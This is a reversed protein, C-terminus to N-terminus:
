RGLFSEVMPLKRRLEDTVARAQRTDEVVHPTILVVLETKGANDTTTGFLAGLIPIQSLGPIGGRGKTHSKTILGGLAITEGDQVAVSSTIKRQQITPSDIASTTTSTVDSVEQAIDMMVEGGRNVRPTVKLIVGTSQYQVSNVLPADPTVTSVAQQTVIPVQDGVQLTATENNLVMLQPTSLLEVRTVTSLADLVVKINSGTYVAAYGPLSPAIATSASNSLVVSYSPNPQFFYQFGYKLNDNLTVEAIAAEILVQLPAVDLLALAAKITTYQQPTAMFVLANNSADATITVPEQSGAVSGSFQQVSAPPPAPAGPTTAAANSPVPQPSNDSEYDSQQSSHGNASSDGFLTKGLTAALDSARGHQVDYVFIRRHSGTGPRDLRAVWAALQDLYRKQPSIALVTNLRDIPVIRVVGVIPSNMGGLVQTLEKALEQADLNTPTFLAFSMGAMWDADFLAIDDLLTQREEETGEIILLNRATDVHIIAHTSALPTLLKEMESAAIFKIPAVEIGYGTAVDRRAGPRMIGGVQGPADSLSVVKYIDNQLIIAMGSLRLTQDLVALVKSRPLPRSTQITVPGTVNAGIQYNLKLYDGLIAKAVDKVDANIFNLTIDGEGNIETKASPVRRAPGLFNGNGSFIQTQPPNDSGAHAPDPTAVAALVDNASPPTDAGLAGAALCSFSLTLLAVWLNRGSAKM